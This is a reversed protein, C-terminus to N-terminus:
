RARGTNRADAQFMPWPSTAPGGSGRICWAALGNGVYINGEDDLKPSSIFEASYGEGLACAWRRTGDNNVAYLSDSSAALFRNKKGLTALFYIVGTSAVAPTSIVAGLMPSRYIWLLSGDAPRLALLRGSTGVYVTHDPGIVPSSPQDGVLVQWNETGDILNVSALRGDEDAVYIVGLSDDIAPSADIQSTSLGYVWKRVGSYPDLAYLSGLQSAVYVTGDKGIVPSSYGGGTRHSWLRQGNSTVALLSDGNTHIYLTGGVSIAATAMVEEGIYITWKRTGDPNIAYFSDNACSIYISGEDDIAPAPYFENEDLDIFEWRRTGDLRRCNLAGYECGIYAADRTQDLGFTNLSFEASDQPDEPDTYTFSWRINGETPDVTVSLPASWGSSRRANRARVRISYRGPVTYTHTDAFAQGGAVFASWPSRTGDGWDFMYSVEAGTPDSTQTTCAYVAGVTAHAPGRPTEPVLPARGCATLFFFAAALLLTTFQQYRATATSLPDPRAWNKSGTLRM